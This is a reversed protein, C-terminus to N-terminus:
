SVSALAAAQRKRLDVLRELAAKVIEHVRENKREIFSPDPNTELKSITATSFGSEKALDINRVIPDVSHRRECIGYIDPKRGFM